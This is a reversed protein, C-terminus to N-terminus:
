PEGAATRKQTMAAVEENSLWRWAGPALEDTRVGGFDSRALAEVRNGV